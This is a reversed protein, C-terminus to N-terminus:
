RLMSSVNSILKLTYSPFKLYWIHWGKCKKVINKPHRKNSTINDCKFTQCSDKPDYFSGGNDKGSYRCYISIFYWCFNKQQEINKQFIFNLNQQVCKLTFVVIFYDFSRIYTRLCITLIFRGVWLDTITRIKDTNITHITRLFMLYTCDSILMTKARAIMPQTALHSYCVGKHQHLQSKEVLHIILNSPICLTM